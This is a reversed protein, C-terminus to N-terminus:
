HTKLSHLTNGKRIVSYGHVCMLMACVCVCLTQFLNLSWEETNCDTSVFQSCILFTSIWPLSELSQRRWRILKTSSLPSIHSPLSFTRDTCHIFKGCNWGCSLKVLTNLCFLKNSTARKLKEVGNRVLRLLSKKKM